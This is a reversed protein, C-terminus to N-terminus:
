ARVATPSASRSGQLSIGVLRILIAALTLFAAIAILAWSFSGTAERIQGILYPGVFGGLNGISVILALGGAAASGTLFSSPIPWFTSQYCMIGIVAGCLAVISMSASSTTYGCVALAVAGLVLASAVFWSREGGKDSLRAWLMMTVAGCIYPIAALFGITVVGFGFGKLIQPMWLGLGVSGIIACFNVAACVLVRWNTFADKLKSSHKAAIAQRESALVETLWSREEPTLWKAQEPRDTLTFLCVFGLITAPLGELILLWQWGLLGAFGDLALLSSSLPAGIINAIPIGLLFAATARGRARAPFWYTFYLFVGPTFGAEGLGLLFRMVGFSVPGVAFATGASLVGWTILIRAIWKRAGVAQLALNSPVEALFYGFFFLGASWGFQSPSIGLDQNMTLSAVGVNVRDLYAIIYCLLLFPVIRWLVKSLIQEQEQTFGTGVSAAPVVAMPNRWIPRQEGAAVKPVLFLVGNCNKKSRHKM